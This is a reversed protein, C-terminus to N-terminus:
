LYVRAAPVASYMGVVVFQQSSWQRSNCIQSFLSQTWAFCLLEWMLPLVKFVLCSIFWTVVSNLPWYILPLCFAVGCWSVCLISIVPCRVTWVQCMVWNLHQITVFLFFPFYLVKAGTDASPETTSRVSSTLGFCGSWQTRETASDAGLSSGYTAETQTFISHRLKSWTAPHSIPFSSKQAFPWCCLPNKFVCCNTTHQEPSLWVKFWTQNWHIWHLYKWGCSNGVGYFCGPKNVSKWM